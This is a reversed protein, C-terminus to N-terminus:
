PSAVLDLMGGLRGNVLGTAGLVDVNDFGVEVEAAFDVGVVDKFLGGARGVIAPTRFGALAIDGGEWLFCDENLETSSVFFSPMDAFGLLIDIAGDVADSRVDVALDVTGVVALLVPIGEVVEREERVLGVPALFVGVGERTVGM